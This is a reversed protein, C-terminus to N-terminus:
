EKGEKKMKEVVLMFNVTTDLGAVAIAYVNNHRVTVVANIVKAAYSVFQEGTKDLKEDVNIIVNGERIEM